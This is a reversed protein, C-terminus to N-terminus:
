AADLFELDDLGDHLARAALEQREPPWDEYAAQWVIRTAALQVRWEKAERLSSPWAVLELAREWAQDFPVGARKQPPLLHEALQTTPLLGILQPYEHEDTPREALAAM